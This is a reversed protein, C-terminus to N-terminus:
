NEQLGPRKETPHFGQGDGMPPKDNREKKCDRSIHGEEGCNWCRLKRERVIQVRSIKKISNRDGPM